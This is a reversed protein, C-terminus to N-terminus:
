NAETQDTLAEMASLNIKAMHIEMHGFMGMLWPFDHEATQNTRATHNSRSQGRRVAGPVTLSLEVLM